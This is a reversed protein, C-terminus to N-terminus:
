KIVLVQKLYFLILNVKGIFLFSFSIHICVYNVVVRDTRLIVLSYCHFYNCSFQLSVKWIKLHHFTIKNTIQLSSYIVEYLQIHIEFKWLSLQPFMKLFLQIKPLFKHHEYSLKYLGNMKKMMQEINISM